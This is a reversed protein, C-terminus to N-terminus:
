PTPFDPNGGIAGMVMAADPAADTMLLWRGTELVASLPPPGSIAAVATSLALALYVILDDNGGPM